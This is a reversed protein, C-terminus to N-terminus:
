GPRCLTVVRMPVNPAVAPQCYTSSTTEKSRRIYCECWNQVTKGGGSVTTSVYGAQAGRTGDANMTYVPRRGSTTPAVVWPAPPAQLKDYCPKAIPDITPLGTVPDPVRVDVNRAASLQAASQASLGSSIQAQNVGALRAGDVLAIQLRRESYKDPAPAWGAICGTKDNMSVELVVGTWADPWSTIPKDAVQGYAVTPALSIILAVLASVALCVLTALRDKM